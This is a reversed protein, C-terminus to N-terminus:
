LLLHFYGELKVMFVNNLSVPGLLGCVFEVNEHLVARLPVKKLGQNRLLAKCFVFSADYGVLKQLGDFVAVRLVDNM